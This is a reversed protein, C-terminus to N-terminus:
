EAAGSVHNGIADVLAGLARLTNGIYRDVDVGVMDMMAYAFGLIMAVFITWVAIRRALSAPRREVPSDDTRPLVRSTVM